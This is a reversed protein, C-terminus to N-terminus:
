QILFATDSIIRIKFILKLFEQAAQTPCLM